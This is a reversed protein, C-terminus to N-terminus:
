LFSPFAGPALGYVITVAGVVSLVVVVVRRLTRPSLRLGIREGLKVDWLGVLTLAVSGAAFVIWVGFNAVFVIEFIMTTDGIELLFITLFAGVLASPAEHTAAGEPDPTHLALWLAYGLLVVGGGVRVLGIRDPGLAGTLIGGITVAIATALVFGASGGLWTAMAHGRAALAILAFSTRDILELGGIVVFVVAFGDAFGGM